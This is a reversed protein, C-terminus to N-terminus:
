TPINNEELVEYSVRTYDIGLERRVIKRSLATKKMIEEVTAMSGDAKIRANMVKRHIGAYYSSSEGTWFRIQEGLEKKVFGYCYNIFFGKDADYGQIAEFLGVCGAQYLDRMQEKSYRFGNAGRYILEYVYNGYQKIVTENGKRSDERNLDMLEKDSLKETNEEKM